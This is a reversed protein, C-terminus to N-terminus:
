TQIKSLYWIIPAPSRSYCLLARPFIRKFFKKEFSWFTLDPFFWFQGFDWVFQSANIWSFTSFKTSFLPLRHHKLGPSSGVRKRRCDGAWLETVTTITRCPSATRFFQLKAILVWNPAFSLFVAHGCVSSSLCRLPFSFFDLCCFLLTGALRLHYHILSWPSLIDYPAQYVGVYGWCLVYAPFFCFLEQYFDLDHLCTSPVHSCVGPLSTLPMCKSTNRVSLYIGFLILASSPFDIPELCQCM